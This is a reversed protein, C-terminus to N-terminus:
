KILVFEAINRDSVDQNLWISLMTESTIDTLSAEVMNPQEGNESTGRKLMQIGVPIIVKAEGTAKEKMMSIISEQDVGEPRIGRMGGGPGGGMGAGNLSFVQSGSKNENESEGRAEQRAEMDPMEMTLVTVENGVISEVIGMLDAQRDPQGFDPRRVNNEAGGNDTNTNTFNNIKACGTLIASFILLFFLFFLTKKM